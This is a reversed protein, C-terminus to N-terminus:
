CRPTGASGRSTCPWRRATTARWARWRSGSGGASYVDTDTDALATCYDRYVYALLVPNAQWEAWDEVLEDLERACHLPVLQVNAAGEEDTKPLADLYQQLPTHDVRARKILRHM